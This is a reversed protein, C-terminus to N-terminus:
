NNRTKDYNGNYEVGDKSWRVVEDDPPSLRHSDVVGPFSLGSKNQYVYVGEHGNIFPVLFQYGNDMKEALTSGHTKWYQRFIEQFAEAITDITWLSADFLLMGEISCWEPRNSFRWGADGGVTVMYSIYKKM